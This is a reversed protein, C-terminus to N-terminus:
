AAELPLAEVRASAGGVRVETGPAAASRHVYGMAIAGLSESTGASTIRGIEKGDGAEIAAGPSAPASLRLGRLLKNVNGGRAELRAVVEQGVYCGKSPSHYEAVLGTEHLLNDATIDIGLIGPVAHGHFEGADALELQSEEARHVLGVLAGVQVVHAHYRM